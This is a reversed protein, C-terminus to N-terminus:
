VAFAGPWRLLLLGRGALAGDLPVLGLDLALPGLGIAAGGLPAFRTARRIRLEPGGEVTTVAILGGYADAHLTWPGRGLRQRLGLKAEASAHRVRGARLAEFRAGPAHAVGMGVVLRDRVAADLRAGVALTGHAGEWASGFVGLEVVGGLPGFGGADEALLRALAGTDARTAFGLGEGTLRRSVVGVLRGEADVVPGGSNGPNVAAGVQL